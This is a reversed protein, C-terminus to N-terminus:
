YLGVFITYGEDPLAAMVYNTILVELFTHPNHKTKKGKISDSDKEIRDYVKIM